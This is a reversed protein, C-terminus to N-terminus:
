ERKKPEDVDRSSKKSTSVWTADRMNCKKQERSISTLMMDSRLQRM